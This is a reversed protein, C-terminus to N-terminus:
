SLFWGRKFDVIYQVAGTQGNVSIVYNGVPGTAGTVGASGAPGTPGTPGTVGASGAPGTPGTVGASGASGAPGTPGTVGASGAPGTPGIPGTAGTAGIYADFFINNSTGNLEVWQSSDGDEIYVYLKGTNPNFWQDGPTPNAPATTSYFYEIGGTGGGGTGGGVSSLEAWGSDRHEPSKCPIPTTIAVYTKGNKYVVDGQTYQICKGSADSVKFYPPLNTM